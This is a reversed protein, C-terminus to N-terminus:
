MDKLDFHYVEGPMRKPKVFNKNDVILWLVPYNTRTEEDGSLDDYGDSFIMLLDPKDKGKYHKDVFALNKSMNTGGDSQIKFDKLKFKNAASYTKFTDEHVRTSCCWLDVTFQRFQSLITFVHNMLLTLEKDGISGSTDVAVACHLKPTVSTSPLILGNAIGARSPKNWTYNDKMFSKIYRTLARRWDFPQPKFMMQLLRDFASLGTGINKGGASINNLADGVKARVEAKTMEDLQPKGEGLEFRLGTSTKNQKSTNNDNGNGNNNQNQDNSQSQSNDDSSDYQMTMGGQSKIKFSYRGDSQGNNQKEAQNLLDKYIEEAPMDKYKENFCVWDPRTGISKETSYRDNDNLERNYTLLSNIEFDTAINWLKHKAEGKPSVDDFVIGMRNGRENTENLIHMLEHAVIFIMEKTGIIVNHTNGDADVDTEMKNWESVAYENIYISAGDTWAIHKSNEEHVLNIGLRVALQAMTPFDLLMNMMANDLIDNVKSDM